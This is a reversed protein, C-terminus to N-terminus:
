RAQSAIHVENEGQRFVQFLNQKKVHRAQRAIRVGGRSTQPCSKNRWNEQASNRSMATRWISEKERTIGECAETWCFDGKDDVDQVSRRAREDRVVRQRQREEWRVKSAVIHESKEREHELDRFDQQVEALM